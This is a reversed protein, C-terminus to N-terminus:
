VNEKLFELTYIVKCINAGKEKTHGASYPQYKEFLVVKQPATLNEVPIFLGEEVFRKYVDLIIQVPVDVNCMAEIMKVPDDIYRSLYMGALKDYVDRIERM